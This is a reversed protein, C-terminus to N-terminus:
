QAPALLAVLKRLVQLQRRGNALLAARLALRTAADLGPQLARNFVAQASAAPMDALVPGALEPALAQTLARLSWAGAMAPHYFHERTIQFLDVIRPLLANLADALAPEDALHLALERLRNREFGANYALVPGQTGLAQVLSRAFARRPDGGAADALFAQHLLLGPTGHQVDCTWQFPLVQYPRTGAWIPVAFGITDFRLFHRPGPQAQLLEAADGDLVPAGALVARQMRRHRAEALRQSPVTRLDHHGEARLTAALERGVLELAAPHNVPKGRPDDAAGAVLAPPAGVTAADGACHATFGCPIAKLCPADAPTAPEAGRENARMATLWPGVPRSGLVPGLDVERLLGAHCGHGPYIFDTDVLLLGVSQVRLGARAAVHAWLAVADVDAENGVTAWRLKFLRLGYQGRTLVDIRVLAGDDSALCAGLLTGGEPQLAGLDLCAATQQVAGAWDEASLPPAIFLAGPYSARLAAEPAPGAVMAPEALWPSHNDPVAAPQRRQLWFRRSCARWHQLDDTTLQLIAPM